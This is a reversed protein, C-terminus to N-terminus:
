GVGDWSVRVCCDSFDINVEKETKFGNKQFYDSVMDALKNLSKAKLIRTPISPGLALELKTILNPTRTSYAGNSAAREIREETEKIVDSLINHIDPLLTETQKKYFDDSKKKMDKAFIM